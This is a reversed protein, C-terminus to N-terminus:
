RGGVQGLLWRIQEQQHDIQAQQREIRRQQRQAQALLLAPLEQYRVEYPRGQSDEAVLNPLVKAVQEAVLGFQLPNPGGQAYRSKYHFSVPRLSMLRSTLGTLPHIDRKYRRSSTTTGLTGNSNVLVAVGSASTEGDIGAISTSTQTGELGIKIKDSEGASGANAIDINDNGTTLNLGADRGIVTNSSGTTINALAGEGIATNNDGSGGGGLMAERGVATNSNGTRNGSLADQGVGTNNSGTTDEVLALEGLGTNISGGTTNELTDFGFASDGTGTFTGTLPELTNPGVAVNFNPSDSYVGPSCTLAALSSINTLAQGNACPGGSVALTPNPFTGALAGGAPGTSPGPPGQPGTGAFQKILAIIQNRQAKTLKGAAALRARPQGTAAAPGDACAVAFSAILAASACTFGLRALSRRLLRQFASDHRGHDLKM